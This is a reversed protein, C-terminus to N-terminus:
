NTTCITPMRGVGGGFMMIIMTRTPSKVDGDTTTEYEWGDIVEADGETSVLPCLLLSFEELFLM